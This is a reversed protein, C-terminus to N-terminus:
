KSTSFVPSCASKHIYKFLYQFLHSSSAVEVNLHCNFKRLLPLCHPVVWEDGPKRRRYHVKGESDVTTRPQLPHPYGFRCVRQGNVVRQCYRSPPKDAPPHRHTMLKRVLEEDVPDSPLEASVVRDIDDPHTCKQQFRCLIHAHPLGRKQFEVSHIIYDLRGAKPFMTKLSQELSSLKQKFVRVVDTPIDSFDQGPRLRCAIEPWDANCTMTVFFTPNGSHAAITLSDAIQESAWRRSGMFSAPLYINQSDPVFAEGMLEADQQRLRMQNIRIYNLRMELNRTLMDVAYENTLKGFIRFREERLLRARYYMIQRTAIQEHMDDAGNEIEQQFRNQTDVVGWGLTGHPFLLPYALPEWLRSIASISQNEGNHRVVISQRTSVDRLTTNDYNFIAAIENTSPTADLRIHATPCTRPDVGALFLLLAVFPNDRLLARQVCDIWPVPVKSL